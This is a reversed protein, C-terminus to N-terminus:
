FAVVVAVGDLTKVPHGFLFAEAGPSPADHGVTRPRHQHVHGLKGPSSCVSGTNRVESLTQTRTGRVVLGYAAKISGHERRDLRRATSGDLAASVGAAVVPELLFQYVHLDELVTRDQVKDGRESRHTFTDGRASQAIPQM